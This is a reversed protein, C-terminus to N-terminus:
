LNEVGMQRRGGTDNRRGMICNLVPYPLHRYFTPDGMGEKVHTGYL